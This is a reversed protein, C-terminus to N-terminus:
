TSRKKWQCSMVAEDPAIAVKVVIFSLKGNIECVVNPIVGPKSTAEIVKHNNNTFENQWLIDMGFKILEEGELLDEKEYQPIGSGWIDKRDEQNM